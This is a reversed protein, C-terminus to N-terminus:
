PKEPRRPHGVRRVRRVSTRARHASPRLIGLTEPQSPQSGPTAGGDCGPHAGDTATPGATLRLFTLSERWRAPADTRVQGDCGECLTRVAHASVSQRPTAGTQQLPQALRPSPRAPRAASRASSPQLTLRGGAAILCRPRSAPPEGGARRRRAARRGCHRQRSPERARCVVAGPERHRDPGYAQRARARGPQRHSVSIQEGTLYRFSLPTGCQQCFGREAIQSSQWTAPAGATWAFEKRPVSASASFLNGMAKQCMRCHCISAAAPEAYLAYRVAGCQCGGTLVPERDTTM